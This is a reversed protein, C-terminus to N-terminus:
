FLFYSLSSLLGLEIFLHYLFLYYSWYIWWFYFQFSLMYHDCYSDFGINLPQFIINFQNAVIHDEQKEEIVGKYKIIPKGKLEVKPPNVPGIKALLIISM